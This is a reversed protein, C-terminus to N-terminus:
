YAGKADSRRFYVQSHQPVHCREDDNVAQEYVIIDYRNLCLGSLDDAQAILRLADTGVCEIGLQDYRQRRYPNLPSITKAILKRTHFGAM